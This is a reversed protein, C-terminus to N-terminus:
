GIYGIEEDEKVKNKHKEIAKKLRAVFAEIMPLPMYLKIIKEKGRPAFCMLELCFMNRKWRISFAKIQM